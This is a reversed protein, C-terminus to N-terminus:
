IHILSLNLSSIQSIYLSNEKNLRKNEKTLVKNKIKENKIDDYLENFAELLEAYDQIEDEQAMFIINATETAEEEYSSSSDNDNWTAQFAKKKKNFKNFNKFNGKSKM